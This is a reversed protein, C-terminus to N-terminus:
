YGPNQVLNENRNIDGIPIPMLYQTPATFERVFVVEKEQAFQLLDTAEINMGRAKVNFYKEALLWRRMDWFNHNELYLEIQREQRVVQRMKTQDLAAVGSWAAEVTPIGARTRVRNLYEKAQELDGTEVCCEAYGLYLEALRAVPWPYKRPGQLAKQVQYGPDVGKKNLFGTPAYNNNRGQRGCNGNKTFNTVLKAGGDDALYKQYSADADYAGNSSASLIEYFGNQFAVWAYYRPERNLNFEMTKSGKDAINANEDSVTVVNFWDGKGVFEPDEAIPLGNKTYFRELMTLTPAVGNWASSSSFPISKNQLGYTGESRCDAWIIEDNGPEIINFRLTRQVPDRPELNEGFAVNTYLKFGAGEAQTIAEKYAEKAKVWKNPDYVTNMLSSGDKGVLNTYYEKNGNFLPSAAYMLMRAKISKAALSTALGYEAGTRKAPLGAAAEEFKESIFAVCEDFNTRGLFDEPKTDFKPEEKILIIPGYSRLLLFHYYAILFDAQANYDAIKAQTLGPVSAVNNKMIYCQRLGSFLTNWYSIIPNSATYNGKPFNAFTEHEFATVVEDGTMFDLAGQAYNPAPMFSYCSYMYRDAALVDRFADEETPREDPVIDLYDCSVQGCLISGLVLLKYISKM